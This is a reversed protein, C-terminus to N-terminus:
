LSYWEGALRYEAPRMGLKFETYGHGEYLGGIDLSQFGRRKMELMIQWILYNAAKIKRATPGVWGIHLEAVGSFCAVSFGAIPEGDSWAQFVLYDDGGARHMARIFAPEVESFGKESRNEMHRAVIWEVAAADTSITHSLGNRESQNIRNRFNSTFSARIAPSDRTLDVRGSWAGDTSRMVYGLSQLRATGAEGAEIGPGISLAGQWFRGFRRRITAYVAQTLSGDPDPRLLGPGRNIRTILRIGLVRKEWLQCCGVVGQRDEIAIRRVHWGTQAKAEGYLWSQPFQPLGTLAQLRDWENKDNVIRVALVPPRSRAARQWVVSMAGVYPVIDLKQRHTIQAADGLRQRLPADNVLRELAHTLEDTNGPQVLQGNVEDTLIDEVAGVPTAVVAVGAAMGEIVSMPLNESLSPLVLIDAGAILEDVADPRVWGPMTVRDAIGYRRVAERTIEVDGNGAITARWGPNDRMRHLAETLQPVGKNDCILGLFVIHATAGGGRHALKPRAVANPVIHIRDAAGPLRALVVDRWVNGLVVIQAAKEFMLGIVRNRFGPDETWFQHYDGSHLQLVYPVGLICAWLALVIKRWTSGDSAVNLHLVDLRRVFREKAMLSMFAIMYFPSLLIHGTGRTAAFRVAIDTRGQREAEARLASMM